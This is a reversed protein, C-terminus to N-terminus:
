LYSVLVETIYIDGKGGAFTVENNTGPKLKVTLRTIDDTALANIYSEDRGNVNLRIKALREQTAYKVWITARLDGKGEIGALKFGSGEADLGKVKGDELYAGGYLEFKDVGYAIANNPIEYSFLGNTTQKMPLINGDDDFFIKDVCISRMTGHGSVAQNHYFQYWQGKFEMVSGHTTECGVPTMYAGRHTWPGLPSDSTAIRMNNEPQQNDSYSLYYVGNRKFVWTAEHFDHLGEMQVAETELTMMDPCLKAGLYKGGGGVYIYAQGDDDLFVCPDILAFGGLGEIYGQDTFDKNPYKSTAVGIKWTDNWRTESPHPYYFYYTGDKYICDPAWMFGGETRGWKVDDSSLIEGEDVWNVMDKSSFIHYRDMLDCGRAPDIDHSAYVYVTEGDWTHASPDATYISTIFPNRPHLLAM